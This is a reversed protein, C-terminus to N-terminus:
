ARQEYAAATRGGDVSIAFFFTCFLAVVGTDGVTDDGAGCGVHPWMFVFLAFSMAKIGGGNKELHPKPESACRLDAELTYRFGIAAVHLSTEPSDRQIGCVQKVFDTAM